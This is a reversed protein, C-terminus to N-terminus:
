PQPAPPVRLTVKAVNKLRNRVNKSRPAYDAHLVDQIKEQLNACSLSQM